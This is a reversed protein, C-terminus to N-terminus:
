LYSLFWIFPYFYIAQELKNNFALFFNSIFVINSFAM